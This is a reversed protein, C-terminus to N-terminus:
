ENKLYDIPNSQAAKITQIGSVLAVMLGVMVLPIFALLPTFEIRSPYTALWEKTLYYILPAAISFSFLILKMNTRTLLFVLGFVTAGLVKRISIEKLRTNM